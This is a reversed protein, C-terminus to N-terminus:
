KNHKKQLKEIEILTKADPETAEYENGSAAAIYVPKSDSQLKTINDAPSIGLLANISAQHEPHERYALVLREEFKTFAMLNGNDSLLYDVTCGLFEAIKTLHKMYSNIRGSKWDTFANKSIGLYDTLEKQKLNKEKLLKSIKDLTSLILVARKNYNLM